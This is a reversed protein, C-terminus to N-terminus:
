SGDLVGGEQASVVLQEAEVASLAAELRKRARHLRVAAATALISVIATFSSM